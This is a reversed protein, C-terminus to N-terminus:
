GNTQRISLWVLQKGLQSGFWKGTQNLMDMLMDM